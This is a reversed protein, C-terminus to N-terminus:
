RWWAVLQRGADFVVVEKRWFLFAFLLFFGAVWLGSLRRHTMSTYVVPADACLLIVSIWISSDVLALETNTKRTIHMFALIGRFTRGRPM